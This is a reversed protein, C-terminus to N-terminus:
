QPTFVHDLVPQVSEEIRVGPPREIDRYVVAEETLPTKEIPRLIDTPRNICQDLCRGVGDLQRWALRSQELGPRATLLRSQHHARVDRVDVADGQVAMEIAVMELVGYLTGDAE